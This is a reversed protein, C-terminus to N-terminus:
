LGSFPTSAGAFSPLQAGMAHALALLFSAYSKGSADILRGPNLAGAGTGALFAPLDQHAHSWGDGVDSGVYVISNDLLTADGERIADMRGLLYAIQDMYWPVIAEHLSITAAATGSHSLNHHRGSGAGLFTFDKNGFGYDLSYTVFRTADCQLALVLVDLMARTHTPFDLGAGPQAAGGGCARAAPQASQLRSEM